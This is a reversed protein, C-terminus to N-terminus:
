PSGADMASIFEAALDRFGDTFKYVAGYLVVTALIAVVMALEQRM